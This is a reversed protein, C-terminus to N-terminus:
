GRFRRALWASVESPDTVMKKDQKPEEGPRLIQVPPPLQSQKHGADIASQRGWHDVVQILNAVMEVDPPFHDRRWTAADPSLGQVLAWVRRPPM